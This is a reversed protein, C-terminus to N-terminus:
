SRPVWPLSLARQLCIVPCAQLSDSNLLLWSKVIQSCTEQYVIAHLLGRNISWVKRWERQTLPLHRNWKQKGYNPVVFWRLAVSVLNSYCADSCILLGVCSNNWSLFVLIKSAGAHILSHRVYWYDFPPTEVWILNGSSRFYSSCTPIRDSARLYIQRFSRFTSCIWLLWIQM